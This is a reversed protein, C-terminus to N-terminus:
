QAERCDRAALSNLTRSSMNRLVAKLVASIMQAKMAAEFARAHPIGLLNALAAGSKKRAKGAM